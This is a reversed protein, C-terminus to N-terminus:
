NPWLLLFFNKDFLFTETLSFLKQWPIQKTVCLPKKWLYFSGDWFCPSIFKIHWPMTSIHLCYNNIKSMILNRKKYLVFERVEMSCKLYFSIPYHFFLIKHLGTYDYLVVASLSYKPLFLFDDVIKRIKQQEPLSSVFKSM